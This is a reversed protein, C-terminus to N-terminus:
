PMRVAMRVFATRGDQAIAEQEFEGGVPDAYDRDFLNEIGASIAVRSGRPRLLVALNAAWYGPLRTGARTLREGVFRTDVALMLARTRIPTAVDVSALHRPANALTAATGQDTVQQHSYHARALVGSPWRAESEVEVGVARVRDQNTHALRGDALEAQSILDRIWTAYSTAALRLREGFYREVVVEVTQLSEPGLNPNPAQLARRRLLARVPQPRSVRRWLPDQGGDRRRSAAGPRAAPARIRRRPEVPRVTRRRRCDVEPAVGTGGPRYVGWQGSSHALDVFPADEAGEDFNAQNQVFNHRYEVGGTLVHGRGVPRSMLVEGTVWDGRSLDRNVQRGEDYIYTGDYNMRDYSVRATLAAAGATFRRSVDIWGREDTTRNRSDGLTTGYSGTPIHKERSAFLGQVLLTGATVRGFVSAGADGDTSDMGRSRFAGASIVGELGDGSWGGSAQGRLSEFSGAEGKAEVGGIAAGSRTIVNIVAFFASTGYLAAGPGRIVEIREILSIDIPFDTGIGAGDYVNDNLRHGDVLLLTRNNFDSPRGFGRAGLYAYNRDYTTYFGRASALAEALSRWGFTLIDQATIITVSSPADTVRQDRKAAGHVSAVQIGMLEEITKDALQAPGLVPTSQAAATEPALMVASTAMLVLTALWRRSRRSTLM